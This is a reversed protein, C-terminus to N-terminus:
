VGFWRGTHYYRQCGAFLFDDTLNSDHLLLLHILVKDFKDTGCNTNVARKASAILSSRSLVRVKSLSLIRSAMILVFFAVVIQKLSLTM